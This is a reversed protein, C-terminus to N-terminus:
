GGREQGRAPDVAEIATFLDALAARDCEPIEPRWIEFLLITRDSTGRNWAEHEISDDFILMEGFQWSRTESGVRLGCGDPVVLPLHCILRTNLLGHHPKIHTGPKLRSYLAMPSRGTIHPQPARALAAITLPTAASLVTPQGGQWLYGAGWSPDELLHNVPAPRNDLRAVYPVFADTLALYEDRLVEAAAEFDAVWDFDDRAYFQRQPLGPYYFMSPQQFFLERRGFLLDVSAHFDASAGAVAASDGLAQDIHRTFDERSKACYAEARQLLPQLPAPAGRSAAGLAGRFWAAAARSDGLRDFGDGMALQAAVDQPQLKLIRHLVAVEALTDGLMQNAQAMLWLAGLDLDTADGLLALADGARGGRLALAAESKRQPLVPDTM